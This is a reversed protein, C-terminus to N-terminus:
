EEDFNLVLQPGSKKDAAEKEVPGVRLLRVGAGEDVKVEKPARGFRTEFRKVADAQPHDVTFTLYTLTNKM